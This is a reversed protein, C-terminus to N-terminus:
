LVTGFGGCNIDPAGDRKIVMYYERLNRDYEGLVHRVLTFTSIPCKHHICLDRNPLSIGNSKPHECWVHAGSYKEKGVFKCEACCRIETM